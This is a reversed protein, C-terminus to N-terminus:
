AHIVGKKLYEMENCDGGAIGFLARGSLTPVTGSGAQNGKESDAITYGATRAIGAVAPSRVVM